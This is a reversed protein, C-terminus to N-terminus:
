VGTSGLGKNGRETKKLNKVFIFKIPEGDFSVIQALRTGKKIICENDSLNDVILKIEGRYDKDILGISNSLRLPTKSGMSSRPFVMYPKSKYTNNFYVMNCKIGMGIVFSYTKSPVIIDYPVYMDFGTDTDHNQSTDYMKKLNIDDTQILLTM